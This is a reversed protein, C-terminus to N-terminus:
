GMLSRILTVIISAVASIVAVIIMAKEKWPISPNKIVASQITKMLEFMRDHDKQNTVKFDEFEEHLHKVSEELRVLRERTSV